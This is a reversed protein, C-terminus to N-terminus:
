LLTVEGRSNVRVPTCGLSVVEAKVKEQNDAHQQNVWWGAAKGGHHIAKGGHNLAKYYVFQTHQGVPKSRKVDVTKEAM